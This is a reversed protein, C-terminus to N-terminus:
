FAVHVHDQHHGIAGIQKGYKIGGLPDYFLETVKPYKAAVWKYFASMLAPSGSVDAARNIKTGPYYQYHFSHPVHVPDVKNYLTNEGIRLGMAKAHGLVQELDRLDVTTGGYGVFRPLGPAVPRTNGVPAPAAAAPTTSRRAAAGLAQPKVPQPSASPLSALLAFAPNLGPLGVAARTSSLLSLV